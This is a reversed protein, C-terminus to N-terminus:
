IEELMVQQRKKSELNLTLKIMPVQFPYQRSMSKKSSDLGKLGSEQSSLKTM